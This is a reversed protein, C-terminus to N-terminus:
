CSFKDFNNRSQYDIVYVKYDIVVRGRGV